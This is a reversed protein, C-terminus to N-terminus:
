ASGEARRRARYSRAALKQPVKDGRCTACYRQGRAKREPTFAGGCGACVELGDSRAVASVLQVVLAGFLSWQEPHASGLRIQPRGSGWSLVPQVGGFELWGTLSNGLHSRHSDLGGEDLMRVLDVAFGEARWGPPLNFPGDQGDRRRSDDDRGVFWSYVSGFTAWDSTAPKEQRHLAAAIRLAAGTGSAIFRWIEVREPGGWHCGETLRAHGIPISHKCLGLMGYRAAFARIRGDSAGGLGVFRELLGPQAEAARQGKALRAYERERERDEQSLEWFDWQEPPVYDIWPSPKLWGDELLVRSHVRWAGVPLHRDHLRGNM